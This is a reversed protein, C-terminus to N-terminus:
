VADMNIIEVAGVVRLLLVAVHVVQLHAATVLYHSLFIPLSALANEKSM